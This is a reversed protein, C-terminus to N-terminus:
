IAGSDHDLPGKSERDYATVVLPLSLRDNRGFDPEGTLTVVVVAEVGDLERM